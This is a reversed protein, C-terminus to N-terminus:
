RFGNQGTMRSLGLRLITSRRADGAVRRVKQSRSLSLIQPLLPRQVNAPWISEPKKGNTAVSSPFFDM